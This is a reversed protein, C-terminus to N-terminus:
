TVSAQGAAMDRRFSLSAAAFLLAALAYAVPVVLMGRALALNGLSAHLADSIIGALLPGLGGALSNGALLLASAMARANAPVLRQIAGIVPAQYAVGIIQTLGMCATAVLPDGVLFAALAPVLLLGILLSVVWLSWRPDREALANALGAALLLGIGGAVGSAIGYIRGMHALDMHHVRMLFASGFTTMTYGGISVCCAALTILLFSRMKLLALSARLRQSPGNGAQAQPARRGLVVLVLPVVLLGAAGMIRFTARWGLWHGLVAGGWTTIMIAIPMALTLLALPMVRRHPPFHAGVFAHGAPGSGAEGVAVGVRCLAFQWGSRAYAGGLTMASWLGLSAAIVLGFAGRDSLRAIPLGILAYVVLFGFGNILGIATDSLALDHKIPEM